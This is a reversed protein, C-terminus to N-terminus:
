LLLDYAKARVAMYMSHRISYEVGHGKNPIVM